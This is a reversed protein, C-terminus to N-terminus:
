QQVTLQVANSAATTASPSSPDRYWAQVWVSDGVAWPAGLAGPHNFHFANWNLTLSGNCQAAVGGTSQAPTRQVPSKVCLFSTSAGWPVPAFGANNVGYFMVGARQGEAGSVVIVCNTSLTASPQATATISAVCGNSSTGATCFTTPPLIAAEVVFGFQPNSDVLDNWLKRRVLDPSFFQLRDEALGNFDNPEGPSWNHFTWPEGSTWTWAAGPPVGAPQYGGLWPGLLRPPNNAQKWFQPANVLSFVFDNEATSSISALEGGLAIAQQRAATWSIGAPRHVAQYYHGNGSWQVWASQASAHASLLAFLGLTLAGLRPGAARAGQPFKSLSPLHLKM